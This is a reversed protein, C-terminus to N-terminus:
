GEVGRGWGEMLLILECRLRTSCVLLRASMVGATSSKRRCMARYMLASWAALSTAARSVPALASNRMSPQNALPVPPHPCTSRTAAHQHPASAASTPSTGPGTQAEPFPQQPHAPPSSSHPSRPSCTPYRTLSIPISTHSTQQDQQHQNGRAGPSSSAKYSQEDYVPAAAADSYSIYREHHHVRHSTAYGRQTSTDSAVPGTRSENGHKVIGSTHALSRQLPVYIM